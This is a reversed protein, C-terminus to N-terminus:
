KEEEKEEERECNVCYGDIHSHVGGGHITLLPSIATIRLENNLEKFQALTRLFDESESTEFYFILHGSYEVNEPLNLKEEIIEKELTEKRLREKELASDREAKEKEIKALKEIKSEKGM